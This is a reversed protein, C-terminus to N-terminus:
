RLVFTAYMIWDRPVGEGEASLESDWARGHKGLRGFAVWFGLLSVWGFGWCALLIHPRLALRSLLRERPASSRRLEIPLWWIPILNRPTSNMSATSPKSKQSTTRRSGLRTLTDEGGFLICYNTESEGATSSRKWRGNRKEMLSLQCHPHCSRALCPTTPPSTCCPSPSCGISACRTRFIWNM